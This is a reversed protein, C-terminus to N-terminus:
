IGKQTKRKFLKEGERGLEEMLVTISGAGAAFAYEIAEKKSM